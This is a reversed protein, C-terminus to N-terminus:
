KVVGTVVNVGAPIHYNGNDLQYAKFANVLLEKDEFTKISEALHLTSYYNILHETNLLKAYGNKHELKYSINSLEDLTNTFVKFTYGRDDHPFPLEQELIRTAYSQEASYADFYYFMFQTGPKLQTFLKKIESKARQEALELDKYCGHEDTEPYYYEWFSLLSYNYAYFSCVFDFTSLKDTQDIYDNIPKVIFDGNSGHFRQKIKEIMSNSLDIGTYTSSKPLIFNTMRGTGVGFELTSKFRKNELYQKLFETEDVYNKSLFDFFYYDPLVADYKTATDKQMYKHNKYYTMTNIEGYNFKINQINWPYAVM